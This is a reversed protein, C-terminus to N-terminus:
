APLSEEEAENYNKLFEELNVSYGGSHEDLGQKTAIIPFPDVPMESVGMMRRIAIMEEPSINAMIEDEPNTPAHQSLFAKHFAIRQFQMSSLNAVLLANPNIGRKTLDNARVMGISLVMFGVGVWQFLTLRDDLIFFAMLLAVAIEGLATVATQFGGLLKVGAFLMLRALATTIGLLIIPSLAVRYTELPVRSAGPLWAVTVLVAMTSVIYLTATQSPMEFVVYQSFVITGAFMLANALMLGVGTPNMYGGSFGTLILLGIVSFLGQFWVRRNLKEGDLRILLLAFALYTGNILQSLSADLLGLGSYFFLSGIGNIIGIIVCGSLNAPHVFIYQRFFLLYVIWLIAAAVITRIAAVSFPDIGTQLAIKGWVPALGLFFPTLLTTAVARLRQNTSLQDSM